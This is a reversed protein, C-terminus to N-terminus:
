RKSRRAIKAAMIGAIVGADINVVVLPSCSQLMAFLATEGKPHIGYGTSVPLGIVPVDILGSIITPLAGERGAAVIVVDPDSGTLRNLPEIIRHVGAVGIDYSTTVSCGMERLVAEAEKAVPIDSTGATLIAVKGFPEPPVFDKGKMVLFRGVPDYSSSAPGLSGILDSAQEQGIRSILARGVRALFEAGIKRVQEPTKGEALIIEPAGTRDARGPDINCEVSGWLRARLERRATELDMEGKHLRELIDEMTTIHMIGNFFMDRVRWLLYKILTPTGWGNRALDTGAPSSRLDM